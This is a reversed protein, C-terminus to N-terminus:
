DSIRGSVSGAFAGIRYMGEITMTEHDISGEALLEDLTADGELMSVVMTGDSTVFGGLEYTSNTITTISTKFRGEEINFVTTGVEEGSLDLSVEYTGDFETIPDLDFPTSGRSGCFVGGREGDDIEYSGSVLGDQIQGDAVVVSGQNGEIPEFIFNGDNDLYGEIWFVESFISVLDGSFRSNEVVLTGLAAQIGSTIFTVTYTGDFPGVATAADDPQPEAGDTPTESTSPPTEQPTDPTPEQGGECGTHAVSMMLLAAVSLWSIRNMM